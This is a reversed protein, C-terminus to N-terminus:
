PQPGGGPPVWKKEALPGMPAATPDGESESEQEEDMNIIGLAELAKILYEIIKAMDAKGSTLCETLIDGVQQRTLDRDQWRLLHWYATSIAGFNVDGQGIEQVVAMLGHGYERRLQDDLGQLTNFDCRLTRHRDLEVDYTPRIKKGM